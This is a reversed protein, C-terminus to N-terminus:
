VLSTNDRRAVIDTKYLKLLPNDLKQWRALETVDYHCGGGSDHIVFLRSPFMNSSLDDSEEVLYM